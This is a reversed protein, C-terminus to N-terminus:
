PLPSLQPLRVTSMLGAYYRELRECGQNLTLSQATQLAARVIATNDSLLATELTNALANVQDPPTLYGNQRDCVNEAVAGSNVTIVPIGSAMAEVITLGFTEYPSPSCFVDCSAYLKAKAAGMMVGTFHVHPVNAARRKLSDVVPSPADGAIILSLKPLRCKLQAFADILLDVRKELGLRGLFLVVQHDRESETLWQHLMTRDRLQPSYPLPDIGYFPVVQTREIGVEHCSHAAAHSTCITIDIGRYIPKAVKFRKAVKPIWRWGPYTASFNYVDTHFEGVYPIQRETAYRRGPNQWCGMMVFRDVDTSVILDPQYHRLRQDIWRAARLKPVRTLPYPLWPRSPYREVILHNAPAPSEQGDPAFVIVRYGRDVFWQSRAWNFHSAGSVEPPFTTVLFAVTKPM